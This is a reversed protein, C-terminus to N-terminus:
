NFEILPKVTPYYKLILQEISKRINEDDTTTLINQVEDVLLFSDDNSTFFCIIIAENPRFYVQEPVFEYYGSSKRDYPINREYCYAELDDFQGNRAMQDSMCIEGDNEFIEISDAELPCEFSINLQESIAKKLDDDLFHLPMSIQAYFYESSM